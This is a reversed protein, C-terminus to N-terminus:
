FAKTNVPVKENQKVLTFMDYVYTREHNFWDLFSNEKEITYEITSKTLYIEFYNTKSWIINMTTSVLIEKCCLYKM